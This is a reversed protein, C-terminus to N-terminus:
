AASLVVKGFQEGAELHAFAQAGEALALLLQPQLTVREWTTGSLHARAFAIRSGYGGINANYQAPAATGELISM